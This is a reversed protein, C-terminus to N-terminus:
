EIDSSQCKVGYHYKILKHALNHADQIGTNMGLGGAPPISHASDGALIIRGEHYRDAVVSSLRWLEKHVVQIDNRINSKISEDFLELIMSINSPELLFDLDEIEPSIPLQLVFTGTRYCHNVLCGVVESNYVFHLMAKLKRQQLIRSLKKSTFCVNLFSQLNREGHLGIKTFSRIKSNFGDCAM